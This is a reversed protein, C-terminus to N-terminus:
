RSRTTSRIIKDIVSDADAGSVINFLQKLLPANTQMMAQALGTVPRDPNGFASALLQGDQSRVDLAYGSNDLLLGQMVGPPTYRIEISAGEIVTTFGNGTANPQWVFDGYTSGEILNSLLQREKDPTM